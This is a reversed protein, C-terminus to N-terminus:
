GFKKQNITLSQRNLDANEVKMPKNKLGLLKYKEFIKEHQKNWM